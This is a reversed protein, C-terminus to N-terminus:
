MWRAIMRRLWSPRRHAVRKHGLGGTWGYVWGARNDIPQLELNAQHESRLEVLTMM